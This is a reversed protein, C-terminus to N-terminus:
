DANREGRAALGALNKANLWWLAALVATRLVTVADFAAGHLDADYLLPFQLFLLLDLLVLLWLEKTGAVLLALPAIWIIWQQSFFWGFAVFPILLYLCARVYAEKGGVRARSLLPLVAGFQLLGFAFSVAARAAYPAAGMATIGRLVIERVSGLETGRNAHIGYIIALPSMGLVRAALLFGAALVFAIVSARVTAVHAARKDKAEELRLGFPVVFLVPYVKAAVGAFIAFLAAGYRESAVALVALSVLLAPFTDFRWLSFYLFAPLFFALLRLRSKGFRGLLVATLAFLLGFCITSRALSYVEFTMKDDTFFRPAAIYLAGLPPYEQTSAATYPLDGDAIWGSRDYFIMVEYRDRILRIGQPVLRSGRFLREPALFTLAGALLAVLFGVAFFRAATWSTGPEKAHTM